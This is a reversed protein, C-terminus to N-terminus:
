KSKSTKLKGGKKFKAPKKSLDLTTVFGSPNKYSIKKVISGKSFTDKKVPDMSMNKGETVKKNGFRDSETYVTGKSNLYKKGTSDSVFRPAAEKYYTGVKNGKKDYKVVKTQKNGNQKTNVVVDIRGNKTEKSIREPSSKYSNAQKKGVRALRQGETEIVKKNKVPQKKVEVKKKIPQKKIEVEKKVPKISKPKNSIDKKEQTPKDVIGLAKLGAATGFKSNVLDKITEGRSIRKKASNIYALKQAESSFGGPLLKTKSEEPKKNSVSDVTTKQSISESKPITPVEFGPFSDWTSNRKLGQVEKGGDEYKKLRKRPPVSKSKKNLKKMKDLNAQKTKLKKLNLYM